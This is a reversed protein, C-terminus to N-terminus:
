RTAESQLRQDRAHNPVAAYSTPVRAAAHFVEAAVEGQPRDGNVSVVIGMDAFFALM